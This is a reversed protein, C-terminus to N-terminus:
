PWMKNCPRPGTRLRAIKINKDGGWGWGPCWSYASPCPGQQPDTCHLVGALVRPAALHEKLMILLAAQDLSASSFLNGGFSFVKLHSFRFSEGHRVHEALYPLHAPFTLWRESLLTFFFCSSFFPFVLDLLPLCAGSLGEGSLLVETSMVTSDASSAAWHPFLTLNFYLGM